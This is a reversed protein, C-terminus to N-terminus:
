ILARLITRVPETKNLSYLHVGPAGGALLARCQNIAFRTGVELTKDKDQAVAQFLEHVTGPITAGCGRCFNVAAEYNTVPLIGPIVRAKVGLGRLRKVYDFYIQNDFFLQTMVFEGGADIKRALIGADADLGAALPHGEPFGAVGVAFHNGYNDRIFQVLESAFKFNEPGPMWNPQDKPADGRLALITRIDHARLKDLILRIEGRTHAVCTFHHVAPLGYQTEVMRVIDLTTDRSSGGAGYTVSVFDPKLAALEGLTVRLSDMGKDTKPPFIEVSFTRPKDNFIDTIKRM